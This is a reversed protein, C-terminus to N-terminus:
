KKKAVSIIEAVSGYEKRITKRATIPTRAYVTETIVDGAVDVEVLFCKAGCQM